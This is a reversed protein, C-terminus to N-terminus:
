HRHLWARGRQVKIEPLAKAYEVTPMSVAAKTASYVITPYHSDNREPNTVAWSSSLGSSVNVVVPNGSKRLLPLASQTARIVNTGFEKLATAGTLGDVGIRGDWGANNLLVDLRGDLRCVM